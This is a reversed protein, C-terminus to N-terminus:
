KLAKGSEGYFHATILFHERGSINQDAYKMVADPFCSSPMCKVQGVIFEEPTM